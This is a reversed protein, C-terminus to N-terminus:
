VPCTPEMGMQFPFPQQSDKTAQETGRKKDPRHAEHEDFLGLIPLIIRCGVATGRNMKHWKSVFMVDFWDWVEKAPLLM